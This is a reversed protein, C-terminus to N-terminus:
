KSWLIIQQVIIGAMVPLTYESSIYVLYSGGLFVMVGIVNAMIGKMVDGTEKSYQEYGRGKNRRIEM